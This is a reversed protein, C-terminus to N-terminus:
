AANKLAIDIGPRPSGRGTVFDYGPGATCISGCTGNTGTTVDSLGSTASYVATHALFVRSSTYAALVTKGAAKRLQNAAAM